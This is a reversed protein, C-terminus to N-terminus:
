PTTARDRFASPTKTVRIALDDLFSKGQESYSRSEEASLPVVLNEWAIDGVVVELYLHGDDDQTLAYMRDQDVLLERRGSM